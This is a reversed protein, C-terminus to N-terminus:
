EDRTMMRLITKVGRRKATAIFATPTKEAAM